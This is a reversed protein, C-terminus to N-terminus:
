AAPHGARARRRRAPRRGVAGPGATGMPQALDVVPAAPRAVHTEGLALRRALESPAVLTLGARRCADLFSPHRLLKHERVRRLVEAPTAADRGLLTTDLFGPHCALEVVEGPVRGLWRAFFGADALCPPDTVGALANNGPFGLRALRRASRRGMLSLFARKLRAGPVTLLMTAPERVRRVYPLTGQRALLRELAPGVPSFVQLHHHANVLDPPRGVLDHFRRYQACLEAEIEAPCLRRLLLRRLFAGLGWFRGEGDVLSPVLGPPLVPRDLTLCPHWGIDPRSGARRWARAAAEAHPSTVLLVTATVVGRAALDLVGGSTAPGIGFDDAVVVLYRTRPL